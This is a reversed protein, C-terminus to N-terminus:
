ATAEEDDHMRSLHATLRSFIANASLKERRKADLTGRIDAAQKDDTIREQADFKPGLIRIAAMDPSGKGKVVYYSVGLLGCGVKFARDEAQENAAPDLHLELFHEMTAGELSAAVQFADITAVFAGAMGNKAHDMFRDAMAIRTQDSVKGTACWLQANVQRMRTAVDKQQIAVELAKYVRQASDVLKTWVIISQGESLEGIANSLFLDLKDGLVGSLSM